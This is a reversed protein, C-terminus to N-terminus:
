KDKDLTDRFHYGGSVVSHRDGSYPLQVTGTTNPPLQIDLSFQNDEIRWSSEIRGHVSELQAKAWTLGGGPEPKFHIHKYGPQDPDLTIGAVTEYMWQGIAGYAYHNFSNMGASQFGKDQRYSDWREWMTTAGNNVTFLWSPYDEQMLLDYALDTRGFRSLVPCLLPTGLFGTTLQKGRREIAHVLHNVANSRMEEPLLDFGLALVYATQTDGAIRSEPTVFQRNFADRINAALTAFQDGEAPQDVIRAIRSVLETSYAFFATGIMDKPTPANFPDADPALWDGYGAFRGEGRGRIFGPSTKELFGIYRKMAPYHTELINRDAFCQYITWPCIVVADAWGPGGDRDEESQYESDPAWSPIAGNSSQCDTLDFMWKNFFTAVDANFSATRVFVQADGTWGLREDRQPCDTPVDVFNGKQGWWINSQLQNVKENSCSFTGIQPTDSHLVVATASDRSPQGPYNTVELYRFGHFTFKPEYVEDSNDGRSTYLDTARARRLNETYLGGHEDLVEGHRLEIQCRRDSKLKLRVRGVLNQGFDFLWVPRGYIDTKRIPASIPSIAEHQKVLPSITPAREMGSDEGVFVENWLLHPDFGPETWAGHEKQADYVEGEYIDSRLLAGTSWRWDRGTEVVQTGGDETRIILLALLLPRDTYKQRGFWAVHGAAWGDGLLAGMANNGKRLASTVDFAQYPIRKSYQTWGPSLEADGIRQGNIWCEYLGLSTIYLRADTIQGPIDFERRLYPCPVNTQLSGVLSSGIWQANHWDERHLLGMEWRSIESWPGPNDEHDWVQVRWYCRQRAVLAQGSYRIGVARASEIRGSDWLDAEDAELKERSSSVQVRYATQHAGQRSDEIRWSLVPQAEHLGMPETLSHCRLDIAKM